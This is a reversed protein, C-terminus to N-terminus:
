LYEIPAVLNEKLLKKLPPDNALFVHPVDSNHYSLDEYHTLINM